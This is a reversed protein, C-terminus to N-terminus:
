FSGTGLATDCLNELFRSAVQFNLADSPHCFRAEYQPGVFIPRWPVFNLLRPTRPGQIQAVVVM